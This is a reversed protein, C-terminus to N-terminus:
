KLRWYLAGVERRIRSGEPLVAKATRRMGDVVASGWGGKEQPREIQALLQEYYDSRRALRWFMYAYDSHPYKWPKDAGAYHIIWPDQRAQEYTDFLEHPAFSAVNKVRNRTDTLVNWRVPIYSVHGECTVNLIDQDSYMYAANGAMEMLEQVSFHARLKPIHMLLVGAQFYGLPNKLQLVERCYAQTDPNAGNCQGIFDMDHVAGLWSEKLDMSYLKAPDRLIIMDCDLYLVKEHHKFLDLILFRYYTEESIHGKGRLQYGALHGKVNVFHLSVPKHEFEHYLRKQNEATINRHLIYISYITDPQSEEWAMQESPDVAEVLSHLCVSLVPVYQDNVALVIPVENERPAPIPPEKESTDQVLVMQKEALRYSTNKMYEYYIGFLREGLHGLTRRGERSYTKLDIRQEVAELVSFLFSSYEFFVDRKAIFMNCPYFVKGKLYKKATEYLAPYQEEIVDLMLYLDKVDLGRAKGYHDFLNKAQMASVPIGAAAIMDTSCIQREMNQQSLGLQRFLERDLVPRIVSGSDSERFRKEAFSFLRRYHCFGYYDADINKWAWYQTTLECYSRNKPSIHEGTDDRLMGDKMPMTQFVSGATVHCFYPHKWMRDSSDPTHSVFIRIQRETKRDQEDLSM